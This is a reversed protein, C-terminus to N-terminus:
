KMTKMRDQTNNIARSERETERERDREAQRRERETGGERGGEGERERERRDVQGYLYAYEYVCVYARRHICTHPATLIINKPQGLYLRNDYVPSGLLSWAKSFRGYLHFSVGARRCPKPKLTSSPIKLM